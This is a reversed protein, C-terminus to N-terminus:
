NTLGAIAAGIVPANDVSIIDTYIGRQDELHQKLYFEVHSRLNKMHYFTTGDAIICIPMTPDTGQGTKIAAASL